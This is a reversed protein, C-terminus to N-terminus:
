VEPEPGRTSLSARQPDGDRLREGERPSPLPVATSQEVLFDRLVPFVIEPAGRGILVDAHGYGHGIRAHRKPGGWDRCSAEVVEPPAIGDKEGSVFLAPQRCTPLLARDGVAGGASRLSDVRAVAAFQGLVGRQLDVRGRALLRRYVAPDVNRRDVALDLLPPHWVGSFPATMLALERLFRGLGLHRLRVLRALRPQAHYHAPGALAVLGAIRTPHLGCAAMGLIAGQSHGVYLVQEEGTAARIADFAAPLDERLYTDLTWRRGPGRRSRGHGRLDLTFCDFGARSLFAAVSYREVGFDFAQRNMAIGHVLLVPPTRPPARPRRRGLYLTWGDRTSAQLVEDERTPAALRWRWFFHHLVALLLGVLLAAGAAALVDTSM